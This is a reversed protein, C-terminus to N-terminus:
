RCDRCLREEGHSEKVEKNRVVSNNGAFLLAKHLGRRSVFLVTRCREEIDRCRVIGSVGDIFKVVFEAEGREGCLEVKLLRWCDLLAGCRCSVDLWAWVRWM